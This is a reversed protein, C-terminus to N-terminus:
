DKLLNQIFNKRKRKYASLQSKLFLIQISNNSEAGIKNIVHLILVLNLLISIEYFM